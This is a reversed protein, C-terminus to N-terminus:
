AKPKLGWLTLKDAIFAIVQDHEGKGNGTVKLPTGFAFHVPLSPRIPGFEKIWSGNGWADSRIAVPVVPVDARRALKVGISNFEAPNFETTRTTQPFVIISRGSRLRQEGGELVTVLDERPNTRGVVIPNLARMAHKFFPYEVLSKKVIFTVPKQPGIIGGLAFTELTSMHNAIFVAPKEFSRLVATNEVSVTGGIAEIASLSWQSARIWAADDYRGKKALGSSWQVIRFVTAYFRLTPFSRGFWNARNSAPTIYDKTFDFLSM